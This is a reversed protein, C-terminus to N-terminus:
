GFIATMDLADFGENWVVEAENMWTEMDVNFLNSTVAGRMTVDNGYSDTGVIGEPDTPIRLIIHYGYSTEVVGSLGYNEDLAKVAEEFEAVMEGEGFIYGEPYYAYGTDETYEAMLQDFLTELAVPDGSVAQLQTLLDEIQTKQAAIEDETLAEGTTMDQTLLLIHKASLITNEQAYAIVDEDPYDAGAEGYIDIYLKESLLSVENLYDFFAGDVYQQALYEEFAAIEEETCVGDADGIAQDANTEYVERILAQDEEDLAIGLEAAKTTVAHHQTVAYQANMLVVQGNTDTSSMENADWGSLAVGYSAALQQSYMVYYNLWYFYEMWTVEEGNITGVVTDGPYASYGLAATEVAEADDATETTEAAEVDEYQEIESGGCAALALMMVLCLLLAIIKKM